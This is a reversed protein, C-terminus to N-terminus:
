VMPMILAEYGSGDIIKIPKRSAGTHMITIPGANCAEVAAKFYEGSVQLKYDATTAVDIEDQWSGTAVDSASMTLVTPTFALTVRPFKDDVNIGALRQLSALIDDRNVVVNTTMTTDFFLQLQKIPYPDGYLAVTVQTFEDLGVRLKMGDVGLLLEPFMKILSGVMQVPAAIPDTVTMAIPVRAAANKDTAYAHKGDFCIGGLV